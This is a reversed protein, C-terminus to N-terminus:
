NLYLDSELYNKSNELKKPPISPISDWQICQSKKKTLLHLGKLHVVLPGLLLKCLDGQLWNGLKHMSKTSVTLASVGQLTM